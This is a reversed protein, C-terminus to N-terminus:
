IKHHECHIWTTLLSPVVLIMRDHWSRSLYASIRTFVPQYFVWVRKANKWKYITNRLGWSIITLLQPSYNSLISSYIYTKSLLKSLLVLSLHVSWMWMDIFMVVVQRDCTPSRELSLVKSLPIGCCQLIIRETKVTYIM